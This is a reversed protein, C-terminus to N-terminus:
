TDLHPVQPAADREESSLPTEKYVPNNRKWPLLKKERNKQCGHTGEASRTNSLKADESLKLSDSPESNRACRRQLVLVTDDDEDQRREKTREDTMQPNKESRQEDPPSRC